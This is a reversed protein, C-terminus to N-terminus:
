EKDITLTGTIVTYPIAPLTNFVRGSFSYAMNPLRNVGNITGTYDNSSTFNVSKAGASITGSTTAITSTLTESISTIGVVSNTKVANFIATLTNNGDAQLRATAVQASISHAVFLTAIILKITKKM